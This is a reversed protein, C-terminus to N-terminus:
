VKLYFKLLSMDNKPRVYVTVMERIMQRRLSKELTVVTELQVIVESTNIDRTEFRSPTDVSRFQLLIWNCYLVSHIFPWLRVVKHHWHDELHFSTLVCRFPRHPKPNRVSPVEHPPSPGHSKLFVVLNPRTYLQRGLTHGEQSSSTRRRSGFYAHFIFWIGHEM